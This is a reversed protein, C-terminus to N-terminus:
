SARAGPAAASWSRARAGGARRRRGRGDGASAPPGRPGAFPPTLSAELAAREKTSRERMELISRANAPRAGRPSARRLTGSEGHVMEVIRRTDNQWYRRKDSAELQSHGGSRREREREARTTGTRASHGQPKYRQVNYIKVSSEPVLRVRQGPDTTNPQLSTPSPLTHACLPTAGRM